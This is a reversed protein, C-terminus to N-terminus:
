VGVDHGGRHHLTGVAAVRRKVGAPDVLVRQGGAVEVLSLEARLDALSESPLPLRHAVPGRLQSMHGGSYATLEALAPLMHEGAGLLPYGLVFRPEAGLAAARSAM